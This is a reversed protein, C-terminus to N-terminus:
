AGKVPHAPIDYGPASPSEHALRNDTVTAAPDDLCVTGAKLSRQYQAFPTELLVISIASDTSAKGFAFQQVIGAISILTVTVFAIDAVKM